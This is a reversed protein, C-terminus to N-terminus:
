RAVRQLGQQYLAGKRPGPRTHQKRIARVAFGVGVAERAV